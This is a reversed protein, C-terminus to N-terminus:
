QGPHRVYDNPNITLDRVILLIAWRRGAAVKIVRGRGGWLGALAALRPLPFWAARRTV